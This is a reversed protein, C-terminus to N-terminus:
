QRDRIVFRVPVEVEMSTTVGQRRGPHFQWNRITDAASRDLSSFGSTQHVRVSSVKGDSEVTARLTVLGQQGARLADSPYPPTPNVRIRPPEDTETGQSAKSGVSPDSAVTGTKDPTKSQSSASKDAHEHVEPQVLPPSTRQPPQETEGKVM